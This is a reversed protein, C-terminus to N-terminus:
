TVRRPPGMSRNGFIAGGKGQGDEWFLTGPGNGEEDRSPFLRTGDDLTIYVAGPDNETWIYHDMLDKPLPEVSVIRRGVLGTLDQTPM